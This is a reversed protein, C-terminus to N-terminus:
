FVTYQKRGGAGYRHTPKGTGGACSTGPFMHNNKGMISKSLENRYGIGSHWPRGATAFSADRRCVSLM